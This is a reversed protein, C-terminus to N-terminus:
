SVSIPLNNTLYEVRTNFLYYKGKPWTPHRVSYLGRATHAVAPDEAGSGGREADM